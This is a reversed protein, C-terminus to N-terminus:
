EEDAGACYTAERVSISPSSFGRAALEISQLQEFYGIIPRAMPRRTSVFDWAERLTWGAHRSCVLYGMVVTPARNVGQSCHVLCGGGSQRAEDIFTVCAPLSQGLDSRGFDCLPAAWITLQENYPPPPVRYGGKVNLIHTVGAEALLAFSVSAGHDGLFLPGLGEWAPLILTPPKALSRRTAVAVQESHHLTPSGLAADAPSLQGPLGAGGRKDVAVAQLCPRESRLGGATGAFSRTHSDEPRSGDSGLVVTHPRRARPGNRQSGAATGASASRPGSSGGAGGSM